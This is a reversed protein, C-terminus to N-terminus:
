VVPLTLNPFVFMAILGVPKCFKPGDGQTSASRMVYVKLEKAVVDGVTIGGIFTVDLTSLSLLITPHLVAHFTLPLEPCLRYTRM